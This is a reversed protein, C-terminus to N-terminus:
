KIIVQFSSLLSSSWQLSPPVLKVLGPIMVPCFTWDKIVVAVVVGVEVAVMDQLIDLCEVKCNPHTLWKM